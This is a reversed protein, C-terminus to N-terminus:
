PCVVTLPPNPLFTRTAASPTVDAKVEYTGVAWTRTFVFPPSIDVNGDPAGNKYLRVGVTGAPPTVTFVYRCGNHKVQVNTSISKTFTATASKDADMLVSCAGSGSCAGSWGAFTSGPDALQKVEVTTGAPIAGGGTVTGTGTGAKPTTLIFATPVVTNQTDCHKWTGPKPDIGFAVVSCPTSGTVTKSVYATGDGFRVV